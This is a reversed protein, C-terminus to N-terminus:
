VRYVASERRTRSAGAQAYGGGNEYDEQGHQNFGDPQGNARRSARCDGAWGRQRRYGREAGGGSYGGGRGTRGADAHDTPYDARAEVCDYLGGGAGPWDELDGDATSLELACDA